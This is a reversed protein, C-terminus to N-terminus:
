ELVEKLANKAWYVTGQIERDLRCTPTEAPFGTSKVTFIDLVIATEEFSAARVKSGATIELPSTPLLRDHREKVIRKLRDSVCLKTLMDRLKTLNAITSNIYSETYSPVLRQLRHYGQVYLTYDQMDIKEVTYIFHLCAQIWDTHIDEPINFIPATDRPESWMRPLESEHALKLHGWGEETVCLKENDYNTRSDGVIVGNEWQYEYSATLCEVLFSLNSPYIGLFRKRYYTVFDEAIDPKDKM